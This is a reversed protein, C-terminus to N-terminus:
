VGGGPYEGWKRTEMEGMQKLRPLKEEIFTAVEKHAREIIPPLPTTHEVSAPVDLIAELIRAPDPPLIKDTLEKGMMIDGLDGLDEAM